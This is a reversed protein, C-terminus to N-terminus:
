SDLRIPVPNRLQISDPSVDCDYALLKVGAAHAKQLAEGFEPHTAWNPEFRRVGQMQIVFLLYAEYGDDLCRILEEVHKVGRETPADPFRAVGDQELTVGKVEVFARKGGHELYLDFRSDGYKVERRLSTLDSFLGGKQIWEAAASNPIQSDLNVLMDGKRVAILDYKTKRAPNKSETLWVRAGPILLERCRGTNKVHVTETKGNIEVEAIFRNPRRLFVAETVNAYRM